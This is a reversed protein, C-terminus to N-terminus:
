DDDQPLAGGALVPQRRQGHKRPHEEEIPFDVSVEVPMLLKGVRVGMLVVLVMEVIMALSIVLFRMVMMVDMLRYGMGMSVPGVNMMPVAM